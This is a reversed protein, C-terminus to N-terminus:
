QAAPKKAEKIKVVERGNYTGCTPCVHHPMKLTHCQSCEVLATPKEATHSLRQDHRSKSKKKKPLAGM